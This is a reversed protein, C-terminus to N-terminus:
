GVVDVWVSNTADYVQTHYSIITINDGGTALDTLSNYQLVIQSTNTGVAEVPDNMQHPVTEVTQGISNAPSFQSTGRLNTSRIIAKILDGQALSYPSAILSSMSVSCSSDTTSPTCETHAQYTQDSHLFQIDYNLNPQYNFNPATWSVLVKTYNSPDKVISVANMRDPIGDAKISATSSWSGPGYINM